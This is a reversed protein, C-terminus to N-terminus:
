NKKSDQENKEKIYLFVYGVLMMISAIIGISGWFYYGKELDSISVYLIVALALGRLEKPLM